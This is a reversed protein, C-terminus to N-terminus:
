NVTAFPKPESMLMDEKICGPCLLKKSYGTPYTIRYGHKECYMIYFPLQKAWGTMQIHGIMFSDLIRLCFRQPATLNSVIQRTFDEDLDEFREVEGLDVGNFSFRPM